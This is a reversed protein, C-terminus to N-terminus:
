TSINIKSSRKAFLALLTAMFISGSIDLLVDWGSSTRSPSFSQNFEDICAIAAAFVVPGLFSRVVDSRVYTFARWAFFALLAYETLHACKRIFAHYLDITDEPAAPFFFKLIPRIILSTESSSAQGTSFGLVVLTWLVLPAYAFLMARWKSHELSNETTM